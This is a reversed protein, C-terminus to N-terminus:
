QSYNLFKGSSYLLQSKYKSPSNSIYKYHVFLMSDVFPNNIDEMLYFCNLVPVRLVFEVILNKLM